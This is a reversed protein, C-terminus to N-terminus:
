GRYLVYLGFLPYSVPYTLGTIIGLSTYGIVNAYSDMSNEVPIIRRNATLGIDIGMMTSFIAPLPLITMYLQRFSMLM